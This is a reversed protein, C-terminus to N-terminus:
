ERLEYPNRTINKFLRGADGGKFALSAKMKKNLKYANFIGECEDDAFLIDPHVLTL